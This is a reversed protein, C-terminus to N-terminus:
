IDKVTLNEVVAIKLGLGTIRSDSIQASKKSIKNSRSCTDEPWDEVHQKISCITSNVSLSNKSIGYHATPSM